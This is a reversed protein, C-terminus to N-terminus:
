KFVALSLTTICKRAWYRDTCFPERPVDGISRSFKASVSWGRDFFASKWDINARLVEAIVGISFRKTLM